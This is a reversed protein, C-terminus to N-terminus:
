ATPPRVQQEQLAQEAEEQLQSTLPSLWEYTEIMIPWYRRAAVRWNVLKSQRNICRVKGEMATRADSFECVWSATALGTGSVITAVHNQIDIHRNQILRMTRPLREDPLNPLEDISVSQAKLCCILAKCVEILQVTADRKLHAGAVEFKPASLSLVKSFTELM